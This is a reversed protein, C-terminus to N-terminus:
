LPIAATIRLPLRVECVGSGADVDAMPCDSCNRMSCLFASVHGLPHSWPHARSLKTESESLGKLKADSLIKMPKCLSRM